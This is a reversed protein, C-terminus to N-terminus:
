RSFLNSKDRNPLLDEGKQLLLYLHLDYCMALMRIENQFSQIFEHHVKMIFGLQNEQKWLFTSSDRGLFPYLKWPWLLIFYCPMISSIPLSFMFFTMYM